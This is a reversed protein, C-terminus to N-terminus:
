NPIVKLHCEKNPTYWKRNKPNCFECLGEVKYLSPNSWQMWLESPNGNIVYLAGCCSCTRKNKELAKIEPM